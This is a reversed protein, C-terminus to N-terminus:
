NGAPQLFGRPTGTLGRLRGKARLGVVVGSPDLFRLDHADGDIVPYTGGWPALWESPLPGGKRADVDFVVAVRGGGELFRRAAAGSGGPYSYTVDIGHDVADPIPRKTYDYLRVGQERIAAVLEPMTRHYPVDSTGNLRLAPTLGLRGARRAHAAVEKLLDSAFADPDLVLRATRRIRAAQQENWGSADLDIGGRGSTNLCGAVCDVVSWACVNVGAMRAPALFLGANLFGRATTEKALKPNSSTLLAGVGGVPYAADVADRVALVRARAEGRARRM